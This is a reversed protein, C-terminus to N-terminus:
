ANRMIAAVDGLLPKLWRHSLVIGARGGAAAAAWSHLTVSDFIFVVLAAKVPKRACAVM